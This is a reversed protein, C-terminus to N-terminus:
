GIGCSNSAPSGARLWYSRFARRAGANMGPTSLADGPLAIEWVGRSSTHVGEYNRSSHRALVGCAEDKFQWQFRIGFIFPRAGDDQISAAIDTVGHKAFSQATEIQHTFRSCVTSGPHHRSTFRPGGLAFGSRVFELPQELPKSKGPRRELLERSSTPIFAPDPVVKGTVNGLCRGRPGKIRDQVPFRPRGLEPTPIPVIGKFAFFGLGGDDPPVAGHPDGTSHNGCDGIRGVCPLALGEFRFGLIATDDTSVDAAALTPIDLENLVAQCRQTPLRLAANDTQFRDGRPQPHHLAPRKALTSLGLSRRLGAATVIAVRNLM